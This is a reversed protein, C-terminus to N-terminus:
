QDSTAFRLLSEGDIDVEVKHITVITVADGKKARRFIMLGSRHIARDGDIKITRNVNMHRLRTAACVMDAIAKRGKFAPLGVVDFIGESIYLMSLAAGDSDDGLQNYTAILEDIAIYDAVIDQM